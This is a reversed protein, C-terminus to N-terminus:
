RTRGKSLKIAQTVVAKGQANYKISKASGIDPVIDFDSKSHMVFNKDVKQYIKNDGAHVIPGNHSKSKDADKAMYLNYIGPTLAGAKDVKLNAWAGKQDAQVIRQGNMVLLRLKM